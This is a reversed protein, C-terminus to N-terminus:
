RWSLSRPARMSALEGAADMREPDPLGERGSRPGDQAAPPTLGTSAYKVAKFLQYMIYQKHIEELINARIAAHLDTEMLEFVLYVDQENEAKHIDLLQIINEHGQGDHTDALKQLYVVERYTRQADTASKFAAFIKKLAIQRGDQKRTAKWVIGYAGKGIQASVDYKRQVAKDLAEM